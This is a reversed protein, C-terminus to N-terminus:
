GGGGAGPCPLGSLEDLTRGLARALRCAVALTPRRRGSELHAIMPQGMGSAAALAAQTLGAAERASRLRGAFPMNAEGRTM